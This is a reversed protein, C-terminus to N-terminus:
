EVEMYLCDRLVVDMTEDIMGDSVDHVILKGGTPFMILNGDPQEGELLGLYSEGIPDYSSVLNNIKDFDEKFEQTLPFPSVMLQSGQLIRERTWDLRGNSEPHIVWGFSILTPTSFLVEPQTVHKTEFGVGNWNGVLSEGGVSYAVWVSRPSGDPLAYLAKVAQVPIGDIEFTKIEPLSLMKVTMVYVGGAYQGYFSATSITGTRSLTKLLAISGEQSCLEGEIGSFDFSEVKNALVYQKTDFNSLYGLYNGIYELRAYTQGDWQLTDTLSLVGFVNGNGVLEPFTNSPEPSHNTVLSESWTPIGSSGVTVSEEDSPYFVFSEDSSLEPFLINQDMPRDLLTQQTPLVLPTRGGTFGPTTDLSKNSVIWVFASIGLFFLIVVSVVINKKM